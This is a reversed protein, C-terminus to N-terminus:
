CLLVSIRTAVLVLVAPGGDKVRTHTAPFPMCLAILSVHVQM